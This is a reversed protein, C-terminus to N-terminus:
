KRPEPVTFGMSQFSKMKTVEVIKVAQIEQYAILVIRGGVTDPTRREVLLMGDSTAFNDFPIQEGFSTVLVGRRELEAPWQRFCDRWTEAADLAM